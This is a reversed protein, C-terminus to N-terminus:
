REKSGWARNTPQWIARVEKEQKVKYWSLSLKTYYIEIYCIVVM